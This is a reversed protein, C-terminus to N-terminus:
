SKSQSDSHSQLGWAFPWTCICSAMVRMLAYLKYVFPSCPLPVPRQVHTVTCDISPLAILIPSWFMALRFVSHPMIKVHLVELTACCEPDVTRAHRASITVRVMGGTCRQVAAPGPVGSNACIRTGAVHVRADNHHFVTMCVEDSTIASGACFSLACFSRM